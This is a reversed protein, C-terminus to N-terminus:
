KHYAVKVRTRDFRRSGKVNAPMITVSALAETVLRRRDDPTRGEWGDALDLVRARANRDVIKDLDAVTADIEAQVAERMAAWEDDDLIGAAYKVGIGKKREILLNLKADLASSDVM